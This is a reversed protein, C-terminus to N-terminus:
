RGINLYPQLYRRMKLRAKALLSKSAGVSCGRIAGIEQHTFGEIDHLVFVARCSDPLSAMARQLHHQFLARGGDRGQQLLSERETLSILKNEARRRKKRWYSLSQNIAIRYIWCAFTSDGRFSGIKQYVKIFVEQVIEESDAHNSTMRYAVNYIRQKYMEYLTGVAEREGQQCRLIIQSLMDEAGM